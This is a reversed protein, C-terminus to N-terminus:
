DGNEGPLFIVEDKGAIKEQVKSLILELHRSHSVFDLNDAPITLVPCVSFGAIWAEYASNLQELYGTDITKEYDRNRQQIREVLTPVSARLYIVLDPAPLFALLSQYLAEYTDYDRRTMFGNLYLNHAFIEADEYLSRDLVVSDPYDTLDRYVRLRHGLFFIQSHFSWAQMDKYFDPLYPNNAEPEFFPQWKLRHSLRRVLSSKGVGINGAVIIFKKM